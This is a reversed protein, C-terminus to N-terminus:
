LRLHVFHLLEADSLGLKEVELVGPEVRGALVGRFDAAEPPVLVARYERVELCTTANRGSVTAAVHQWIGGVVGFARWTPRAAVTIGDGTQICVHGLWDSRSRTASMKRVPRGPRRRQGGDRWRRVGLAVSDVVIEIEVGPLPDM